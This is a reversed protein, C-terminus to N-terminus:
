IELKAYLVGGRTLQVDIDIQDDIHGAFTRMIGKRSMRLIM